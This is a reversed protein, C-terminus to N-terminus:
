MPSSTGIKNLYLSHVMLICSQLLIKSSEPLNTFFVQRNTYTVMRFSMWNCTCMSLLHDVSYVPRSVWHCMVDIMRRLVLHLIYIPHLSLTALFSASQATKTILIWLTCSAFVAFGTFELKSIVVLGLYKRWCCGAVQKPALSLMSISLFMCIYSDGSTINPCFGM